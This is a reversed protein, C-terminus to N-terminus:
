AVENTRNQRLLQALHALAAASKDTAFLDEARQLELRTSAEEALRRQRREEAANWEASTRQVREAQRSDAIRKAMLASGIAVANLLLIVASGLVTLAPHRCCWRWVIQARNVPRALIPEGDIFHDLDNALAQASSYRQQPDKQLCRLCITELDRDLYGIVSSPRIPMREVVSRLAEFPTDARIPPNGTLLHYLIAGLSYVDTSTTVERTRGMAQEPAMYSPTGIIAGSQSGENPCDIRRALGFDTIHPRRESDILINAPKLDRHLIGRQHAYDVARALSAMMRAIAFERERLVAKDFSKKSQTNWLTFEDFRDALSGGEIYRMSFYQHGEHEGIEYIPVINPHDLNAVSEAEARFRSITSDNAFGGLIMKLAVLRNLSRQRALYVIGMGGKAIEKLLEYDGVPRIVPRGALKVDPQFNTGSAIDVLRAAVCRACLGHLEGEILQAGCSPCSRKQFTM